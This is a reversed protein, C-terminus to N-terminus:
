QVKLAPFDKVNRVEMQGTLIICKLNWKLLLKSVNLIRGYIILKPRQKTYEITTKILQVEKQMTRQRLEAYIKKQLAYIEWERFFLFKTFKKEQMKEYCQTLKNSIHM